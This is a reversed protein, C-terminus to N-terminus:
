LENRKVEKRQEPTLKRLAFRRGTETDFIEWQNSKKVVDGAKVRARLTKYIDGFVLEAEAPDEGQEIRYRTQFDVPSEGFEIIRIYDGFEQEFMKKVANSM